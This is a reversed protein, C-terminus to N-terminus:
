ERLIVVGKAPIQIRGRVARGTALETLKGGIDALIATDRHNLLFFFSDRGKSRRSAEVGYPVKAAPEIGKERALCRVMASLFDRELSCAV